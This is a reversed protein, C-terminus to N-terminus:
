GNEPDYGCEPCPHEGIEAAGCEGCGLPDLGLNEPGMKALVHPAVTDSIRGVHDGLDPSPDEAFTDLKTELSETM